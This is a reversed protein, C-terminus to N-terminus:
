LVQCLFSVPSTLVTDNVSVCTHCKLLPFTLLAGDLHPLFALQLRHDTQDAGTQVGGRWHVHLHPPFFHTHGTTAVSELLKILLSASHLLVVHRSLRTETQRAQKERGGGVASWHGAVNSRTSCILSELTPCLYSGGDTSYDTSVPEIGERVPPCTLSRPTLLVELHQPLMQGRHHSSTEWQSLFSPSTELTVLRTSGWWKRYSWLLNSM